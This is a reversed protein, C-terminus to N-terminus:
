RTTRTHEHRANVPFKTVNMDPYSRLLVTYAVNTATVVHFDVLSSLGTIHYAPNDPILEMAFFRTTIVALLMAMFSISM